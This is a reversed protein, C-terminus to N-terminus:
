DRLCRVSFGYGKNNAYRAAYGNSIDLNRSLAENTVHETSSWWYGIYGIYSFNGVYYRYGGPLGTFLSTNTASIIPSNWNTTGVEKMKGGAVVEGGLYDILVTWEADSPVHWGTPCVNKNGNTTKSVAYWNYLKGYKANNTVDNDYYCWAGTTNNDWETDDTIMPITSGDSYKSTKLNEAMWVQTGIKVTKYTNGDVDLLNNQFVGVPSGNSTFNIGSSQSVDEVNVTVTCNEGGLAIAFNAPGSSTPTGTVSYIVSGVGNELVGSSLKATLGIVGTSNISQSSFTEGNGGKYFLEFSVSNAVEGKKLLGTLQTSACDISTVLASGSPNTPDTKPPNSTEKKCSILVSTLAFAFFLKKM